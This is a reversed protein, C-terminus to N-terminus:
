SPCCPPPPTPEPLIPVLPPEPSNLIGSFKSHENAKEFSDGGINCVLTTPKLDGSTLLDKLDAETTCRIKGSASKKHFWVDGEPQFAVLSISEFASVSKCEREAECPSERPQSCKACQYAPTGKWTCVWCEKEAVSSDGSALDIPSGCSPCSASISESCLERLWGAELLMDKKLSPAPM